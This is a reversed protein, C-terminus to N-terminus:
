FKLRLTLGYYFSPVYLTVSNYNGTRTSRLSYEVEVTWSNHTSSWQNVTLFLVADIGLDTYYDNINDVGVVFDGRKALLQAVRSAIFGAAGTVLITM